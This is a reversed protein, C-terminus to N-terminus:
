AAAEEAAVRSLALVLGDTLRALRDLDLTDPTDGATHYHPNRYFATDTVMVARYGERWFSAHDSWSVGPILSFTAVHEIPFDTSARFARVLRLMAQRSRLNAVFAVFDARDPYFLRFLPPYLQSGSAGAYYGISELSLMLRLDDGRRRAERAYVLSGMEGTEFFPPEENVFAVFRVTIAPRAAALARSIELLAAVGSANDDAGPSGPVTDYHAGLLLIREPAPRGTCTAELNSCRVGGVEYTRDKVEYGQARWEQEIHDAAARLAGPRLVHREGIESALATVHGELRSRLASLGPRAGEVIM